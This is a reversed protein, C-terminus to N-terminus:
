PREELRLGTVVAYSDRGIGLIDFLRGPQSAIKARDSEDIEPWDGLLNATLERAVFTGASEVAESESVSPGFQCPIDAHRTSWTEEDGGEEDRSVERQEITIRDPYLRDTARPAPMSM